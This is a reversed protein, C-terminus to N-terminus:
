AQRNRASSTPSSMAGSGMRSQRLAIDDGVEDARLRCALASHGRAESIAGGLTWRSYDRACYPWTAHSTRPVFALFSAYVASVVCSAQTSGRSFLAHRPSITVGRIVKVEITRQASHVFRIGLTYRIAM